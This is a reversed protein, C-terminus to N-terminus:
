SLPEPKTDNNLVPIGAMIRSYARFQNTKWSEQTCRQPSWTENGRLMNSNLNGQIGSTTTTGRSCDRRIKDATEYIVIM